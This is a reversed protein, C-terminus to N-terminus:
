KTKEDGSFAWVLAVLWFVGTFLGIVNCIFVGTLKNHNRNSAISTPLLAIYFATIALFIILITTGM